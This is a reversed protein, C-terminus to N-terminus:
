KLTGLKFGWQLNKLLAIVWSEGLAVGEKEQRSNCWQMMAQFSQHCQFHIQQMEYIYKGILARSLIRLHSCQQYLDMFYAHVTKPRRNLPITWSHFPVTFSGFLLLWFSHFLLRFPPDDFSKIPWQVNWFGKSSQEFWEKIFISCNLGFVFPVTFSSFPELHFCVFRFFLRALMYNKAAQATLKKFHHLYCIHDSSITQALFLFLGYKGYFVEEASLKFKQM